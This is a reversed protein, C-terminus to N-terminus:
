KTELTVIAWASAEEIPRHRLLNNMAMARFTALGMSAKLSGPSRVTVM